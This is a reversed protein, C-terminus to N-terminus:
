QLKGLKLGVVYTPFAVGRRTPQLSSVYLAALPLLPVDAGLAIVPLHFDRSRTCYSSQDGAGSCRMANAAGGALLLSMRRWPFRVGALLAQEHRTNGSFDDSRSDVYSAVVPGYGVAGEWQLM